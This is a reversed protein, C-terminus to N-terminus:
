VFCDMLEQYWLHKMILAEKESLDDSLVLDFM